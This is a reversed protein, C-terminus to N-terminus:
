ADALIGVVKRICVGASDEDGNGLHHEAECAWGLAASIANLKAGYLKRLVDLEDDRPQSGLNEPVPM